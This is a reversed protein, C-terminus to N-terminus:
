TRARVHFTEMVRDAVERGGQKLQYELPLRRSASPPLGIGVNGTGVQARDLYVHGFTKVKGTQPSFVTYNLIIGVSASNVNDVSMELWVVYAEEGKKAKDIAEKRSM